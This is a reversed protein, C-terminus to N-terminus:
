VNRVGMDYIKKEVDNKNIALLSFDDIRELESKILSNSYISDSGEAPLVVFDYIDAHSKNKYKRLVRGRRQIYQRPNKTSALIFAKNCVPVDVGEDLVRISVLADIAGSVFESMRNQRELSTERSSFRSSRWNKESLIKSVKEIVREDSGAENSLGAGCYFLSHKREDISFNEALKALEEYKNVAAGLLMSRQGCLRTLNSQEQDNLSKNKKMALLQAISASIEDYTEQEEFTLHVPIIYYNYECLVGDLIANELTYTDVIRDFYSLINEKAYNPFPSDIEDEDSRFPTASLGLRFYADPLAVRINNSGLNHCEDGIFMIDDSNISSIKSQFADSTLTRNVVVASFFNSVGMRFDLIESEIDDTWIKKSDWCRVARINFVKLIEVWQKALEVYPVSIILVLKKRVEFVKTAASIATITKGSGTALELIGKRDNAWWKQIALKQHEKLDFPHGNIHTPMKPLFSKLDDNFFSDYLENDQNDINEIINEKPKIRKVIEEYHSSPMDVVLTNKQNNSWLDEFGDICPQGYKKFSDDWSPFVMISEANYGEDLAYITENASGQFVIFDNNVDKIIGIKEHYMGVRRFAYKIEVKRAGILYSLLELKNLKKEKSEEILAILKINLDNFFRNLEHGHKLALFEDEELPHGIILRMFGNNKILSSIGQLNMMLVQSSFYGVARDYQVASSLAPTYFEKLLNQDGSRYVFDWEIDKLAM